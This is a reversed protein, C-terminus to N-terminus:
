DVCDGEGHTVVLAGVGDGVGEDHHGRRVRLLLGANEVGDVGM